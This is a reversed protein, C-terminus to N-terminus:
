VTALAFLGRGVKKFRPDEYMATWVSDRLQKEPNKPPRSHKFGRARISDAVDAYRMPGGDGESLVEFAWDALSKVESPSSRDALFAAVRSELADQARFHQQVDALLRAGEAVRAPNRALDVDKVARLIRNELADNM